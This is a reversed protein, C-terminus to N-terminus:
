FLFDFLKFLEFFHYVLGLFWIKFNGFVNGFIFISKLFLFEGFTGLRQSLIIWFLVKVCSFYFNLIM